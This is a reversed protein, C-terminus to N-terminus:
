DSIKLIVATTSVKGVAYCLNEDIPEIANIGVNTPTILAEWSYGGDFTRFITGVPSASNHAMWGIYANLFVVDAVSGIGSGTWGTRETWTVGFDLTYFLKGTATGVWARESNIVSVCNLTPTGTVVTAVNWTEGGDITYHVVGLTTVAMGYLADSFSIGYYDTSGLTGSEQATWTQGGDDSFYIYGLASALWIHKEDLAFLCGPHACGHGATAGGINVRTWTLGGDDSYAVLGQAGGVAEQAVLFRTTDSGVKFIQVSISGYAGAFPDTTCAAWNDGADSTKLIDGTAPSVASDVGIIGIDGPYVKLANDVCEKLFAVDFAEQTSATSQRKVTPKIVEIVETASIDFTKLTENDEERNVINTRAINTIKSDVLINARVYNLFQDARGGSRSLAYLAFSGCKIKELFTRAAFTLEDISTTVKDPPSVKEGVVEYAGTPDFCRILDVDGLPQAIDSLSHCGVYHPQTNPGDQQVWLGGDQTTLVKEEM